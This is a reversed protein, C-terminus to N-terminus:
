DQKLNEPCTAPPVLANYVKKALAQSRTYFRASKAFDYLSKTVDEKNSIALGLVYEGKFWDKLATNLIENLATYGNDLYNM